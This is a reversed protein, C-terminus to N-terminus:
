GAATVAYRRRGAVGQWYMSQDRDEALFASEQRNTPHSASKVFTLSRILLGTARRQIAPAAVATVLAAIM